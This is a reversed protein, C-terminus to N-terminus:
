DFWRANTQNLIADAFAEAIERPHALYVLKDCFKFNDGDKTLAAELKRREGDLFGRAWGIYIHSILDSGFVRIAEELVDLRLETNGLEGGTFLRQFPQNGSSCAALILISPATDTLHLTQKAGGDLRGLTRILMSTRSQREAIPLRWATFNRVNAEKAGKNKANEIRKSDLNKYGVRQSVFFTVACTLDLAIGAKL